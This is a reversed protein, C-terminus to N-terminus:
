NVETIKKAMTSDIGMESIMIQFPQNRGRKGPKFFGILSQTRAVWIPRDMEVEIIPYPGPEYIGPKFTVKMGVLSEVAQRYAPSVEINDLGHNWNEEDREGQEHDEPTDLTDNWGLGSSVTDDMEKFLSSINNVAQLFEDARSGRVHGLQERNWQILRPDAEQELVRGLEEKIIQKLQRETIKM